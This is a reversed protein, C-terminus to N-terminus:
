RTETRGTFNCVINYGFVRPFVLPFGFFVSFFRVIDFDAIFFPSNKRANSLHLFAMAPEAGAM